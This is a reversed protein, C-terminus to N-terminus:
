KSILRRISNANGKKNKRVIARAVANKTWNPHRDWISRAAKNWNVRKEKAGTSRKLNENQLAAKRGFHGDIASGVNLQIDAEKLKSGMHLCEHLIHNINGSKIAADLAAIGELIEAAYRVESGKEYGRHAALRNLGRGFGKGNDYTFLHGANTPLGADQLIKKMSKEAGAVLNPGWALALQTQLNKVDSLCALKKNPPSYHGAILPIPKARKAM